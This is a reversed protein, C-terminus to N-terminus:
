VVLHLHASTVPPQEQASGFGERMAITEDDRTILRGLLRYAAYTAEVIEPHEAAYEATRTSPDHVTTVHMDHMAERLAAFFDKAISDARHLAPKLGYLDSASKAENVSDIPRAMLWLPFNNLRKADHSRMHAWFDQADEYDLVPTIGSTNETTPWNYKAVCAQFNPQEVAELSLQEATLPGEGQLYQQLQPDNLTRELASGHSDYEPSNM